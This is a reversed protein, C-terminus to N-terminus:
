VWWAEGSIGRSKRCGPAGVSVYWGRQPSCLRTKEAWYFIHPADKARWSPRDKGIEGVRGTLDGRSLAGLGIRPSAQLAACKRDGSGGGWLFTDKANRGGFIVAREKIIGEKNQKKLPNNKTGVSNGRGSKRTSWNLAAGFPLDVKTNDQSGISRPPSIRDLDDQQAAGGGM